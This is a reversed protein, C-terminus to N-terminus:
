QSHSMFRMIRMQMKFIFCMMQIILHGHTFLFPRIKTYVGVEKKHKRELYTINQQKIFDDRTM